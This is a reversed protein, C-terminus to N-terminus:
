CCLNEGRKSNACMETNDPLFVGESLQPTYSFKHWSLMENQTVYIKCIEFSSVCSYTELM